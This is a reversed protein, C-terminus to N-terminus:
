PKGTSGTRLVNTLRAPIPEDMLRLYLRRLESELESLLCPARGRFRPAMPLPEITAGDPTDTPGMVHVETKTPPERNGHM